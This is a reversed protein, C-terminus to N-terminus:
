TVQEFRPLTDLRDGAGARACLKHGWGGSGSARRVRGANAPTRRRTVSEATLTASRTETRGLRGAPKRACRRESVAWRPADASSVSPAAFGGSSVFCPKSPKQGGRVQPKGSLALSSVRATPALFLWPAPFAHGTDKKCENM